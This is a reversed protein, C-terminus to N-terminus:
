EGGTYSYVVSDLLGPLGAAPDVLRVVDFRAPGCDGFEDCTLNGTLGDFNRTAYLADRLAQRGIHLTGDADQLAVEEIADLLLNTADYTQAHYAGIPMEGFAAQYREVLTDYAPGAPSAPGVVHLDVGSTGVAEIFDPRLLIEAGMLAVDEMGEVDDAQLVVYSAEPHFIPFFLLEAEASAVANM